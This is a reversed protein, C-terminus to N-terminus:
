EALEVLEDIAEDIDQALRDADPLAERDAYLGFFAGGGTTHMGISLAHRDALPVVPYAAELKCGLMYLPDSPGPINSVTLNFARDSAVLRSAVQQVPRPVLSLGKLVTDAGQPQGARKRQSTERHVDYLQAVPDPEDCPLDVFIFSIRNGVGVGDGGNRLNVPVMTKLRHPPQGRRQLFRRMGGACAALVVDNLTTQFHRRVMRLDELPRDLLALHRLPSTPQNLVTDPEAPRLSSALATAARVAQAGASRLRQPSRAVRAPITMLALEDALLDRVGGALRDVTGPAPRPRWEDPEAPEPEPTPDLLLSALQVAGVGDVLCHHAKGVLGIRGDPLDPAFWMEWLPRERDLPVSMVDDALRGLDAAEALHVHRSCDFRDDDVWLPEHVGLPVPKLRQRYRPARPLRAEIHECLDHYRPRPRDEPPAFSAAWGIHMHATPSEVELFSADLASLRAASM